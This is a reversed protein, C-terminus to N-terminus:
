NYFKIILLYRKTGIRSKFQNSDKDFITIESIKIYNNENKKRSHDFDIIRLHLENNNNNDFVM